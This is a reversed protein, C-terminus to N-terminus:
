RGMLDSRLHRLEQIVLEQKQEMSKRLDRVEGALEQHSEKLYKVKEVTASQVERISGTDTYYAAGAGGIIAILITITGCMTWFSPSKVFTKKCEDAQAAIQEAVTM